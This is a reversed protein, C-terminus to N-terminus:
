NKEEGSEWMWRASQLFLLLLSYYLIVYWFFLTENAPTHHFYYLLWVVDGCWFVVGGVVGGHAERGRERWGETRGERMGQKDNCILYHCLSLHGCGTKLRLIPGLSGATGIDTIRFYGGAQLLPIPGVITDRGKIINTKSHQCHKLADCLLAPRGDEVPHTLPTPPPTYHGNATVWVRNTNGTKKQKKKM